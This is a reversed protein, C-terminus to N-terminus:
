TVTIIVFEDIGAPISVPNSKVGIKVADADQDVRFYPLKKAREMTPMRDLGTLGAFEPSVRSTLSPIGAHYLRFDPDSPLCIIRDTPVYPQKTGENPLSFGTPIQVVQPYTWANIIYSGATFQGHLEAGEQQAIPSTLALRKIQELDGAGKVADNNLFKQLAIEGFIADKLARGGDKRILGGVTAFDAFPDATSSTWAIPTSFQHSSKQKFDIEDGNILIIKGAVLADRAQLEEARDIKDTLIMMRDVILDAVDMSYETMENQSRGPLRNNLEEATLYVYEDYAPPTYVKTTFRNAKNARGGSGPSVDIAYEESGRIADISIQKGPFQYEPLSKFFGSLFKTVQIRQKYAATVLTKLLTGAM